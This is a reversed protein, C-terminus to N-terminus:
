KISIKIKKNLDSIPKNLGVVKFGKKLILHNLNGSYERSIFKITAGYKKIEQALTLCRMVHGSGMLVSADTRFVINKM